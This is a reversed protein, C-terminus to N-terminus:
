KQTDPGVYHSNRQWQPGPSDSGRSLVISANLRGNPLDWLKLTGDRGGSALLRDDHSIALSGVANQHGLCYRKLKGIAVDFLEIEHFYATSRALMSGDRSVVLAIAGDRTATFSPQANRKALDFVRMGYGEDAVLIRQSDCFAVQDFTGRYEQLV